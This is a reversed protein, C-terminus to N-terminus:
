CSISFYDWGKLSFHKTLVNQRKKKTTTNRKTLKITFKDNKERCPAGTGTKFVEKAIVAGWAGWVGTRKCVIQSQLESKAKLTM